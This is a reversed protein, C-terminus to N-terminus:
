FSLPSAPITSSSPTCTCVIFVCYLSASPREPGASLLSVHSMSLLASTMGSPVAPTNQSIEAEKGADTLIRHSLWLSGPRSSHSNLFWGHGSLCFQPVKTKKKGPLFTRCSDSSRCPPKVVKSHLCHQRSIGDVHPQPFLPCVM